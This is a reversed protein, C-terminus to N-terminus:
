FIKYNLFIDNLETYIYTIILIIFDRFLERKANNLDVIPNNIQIDGGSNTFKPRRKPM